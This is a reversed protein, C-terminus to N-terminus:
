PHVKYVSRDLYKTEVVNGDKLKNLYALYGGNSAVSYPEYTYGGLAKDNTWIDTTLYNGDVHAVIYVPYEYNNKVKFDTTTSYVTADLGRPVYNPAFTHGRRSVTELGARLTANYLTSALQCVGGGNETKVESNLYVPAPLYGNSSGYPGVYKLYSFTEGPMVVIGYLRSAALNINHGRNGANVFYTKYTSVKTNISELTKNKVENKIITGSAKVKVETDIKNLKKLLVKKTTEEDLAFGNSGKDYHVNYDNDIVMGDDKPETNLDNKIRIMLNNIDDDSIKGSINFVKNKRENSVYIIKKFLSLNKNYNKIQVLIKNNDLTVGIDEYKYTYEGNINTVILNGDLISNEKELVIKDIDSIKKGSLDIDNLYIGPYICNNYEKVKKYADYFKYGFICTILLILVIVLIVIIRDKNDKNIGPISNYKIKASELKEEEKKGIKLGEYAEKKYKACYKNFTKNELSVVTKNQYEYIAIKKLEEKDLSKLFSSLIVTKGYFSFIGLMKSYVFLKASDSDTLNCQGKIRDVILKDNLVDKIVNTILLDKKEDKLLLDVADNIDENFLINKVYNIKQKDNLKNIDTVKEKM